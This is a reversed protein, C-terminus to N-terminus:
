SSIGPTNKIKKTTRLEETSTSMVTENACVFQGILVNSQEELMEAVEEGCRDTLLTKACHKGSKYFECDTINYGQFM